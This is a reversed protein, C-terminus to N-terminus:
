GFPRLNTLCIINVFRVGVLILEEKGWIFVKKFSHKIVTYLISVGMSRSYQNVAAKTASYVPVSPFPELSTVSAINVVIGGKGGQDKGMYKMGLQTGKM